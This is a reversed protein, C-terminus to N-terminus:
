GAKYIIIAVIVFYDSVDIKCKRHVAPLPSGARDGLM